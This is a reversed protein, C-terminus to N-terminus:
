YWKGAGCYRRWGGSAIVANSVFHRAIVESSNLGGDGLVYNSDVVWMGTGTSVACVGVHGHSRDTVYFVLDGPVAATAPQFSSRNDYLYSWSPWSFELGSRARYIIMEVFAVCQTGHGVNTYESGWGTLGQGYLGYRPDSLTLAYHDQQGASLAGGIGPIVNSVYGGKDM